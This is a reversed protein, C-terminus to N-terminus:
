IKLTRISFRNQVASEEKYNKETQGRLGLSVVQHDHLVPITESSFYFLQVLLSQFASNTTM